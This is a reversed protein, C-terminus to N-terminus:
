HSNTEDLGLAADLPDTWTGRTEEDSGVMDEENVIVVM